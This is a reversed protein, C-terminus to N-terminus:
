PHMGTIYSWLRYAGKFNANYVFGHKDLTREMLLDFLNHKDSITIQEALKRAEPLKKNWDKRFQVAITNDCGTLMCYLQELQHTYILYGNSSQLIDDMAPIAIGEYFNTIPATTLESRGFITSLILISSFNLAPLQLLMDKFSANTCPHVNDAQICIPYIQNLQLYVMSVFPYELVYYWQEATMLEKMEARESISDTWIKEILPIEELLAKAIM